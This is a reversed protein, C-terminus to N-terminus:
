QSDREDKMDTRSPGVKAGADQGPDDPFTPNVSFTGTADMSNSAPADPDVPTPDSASQAVHPDAPEPSSQALAPVAALLAAVACAATFRAHIM